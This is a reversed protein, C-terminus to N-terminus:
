KKPKGVPKHAGTVNWYGTGAASTQVLIMQYKRDRPTFFYWEKERYLSMSRLDANNTRVKKSLRDCGDCGTPSTPKTSAVGAPVARKPIYGIRDGLMEYAVSGRPNVFDQDEGLPCLQHPM